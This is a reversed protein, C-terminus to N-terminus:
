QPIINIYDTDNNFSSYLLMQRSDARGNIPESLVKDAGAWPEGSYDQRIAFDEFTNGRGCRFVAFADPHQTVTTASLVPVSVELYDKAIKNIDIVALNDYDPSYVKGHYITVQNKQIVYDFAGDEPAVMYADTSTTATAM